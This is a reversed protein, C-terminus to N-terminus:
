ALWRSAEEVLPHRHLQRSQPDMGVQQQARGRRHVRLRVKHDVFGLGVGLHHRGCSLRESVSIAASASQIQAGNEM